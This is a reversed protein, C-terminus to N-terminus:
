RLQWSTLFVKRVAGTSPKQSYNNLPARPGDHVVVVPLTSPQGPARGVKLSRLSSHGALRKLVQEYIPTRLNALSRSCLLNCCYGFTYLPNATGGHEGPTRRM